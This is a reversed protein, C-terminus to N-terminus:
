PAPRDTSSGGGRFKRCATVHGRLGIRFAKCTGYRPEYEACGACLGVGTGAGTEVSARFARTRAKADKHSQANAREAIRPDPERGILAEWLLNGPATVGWLLLYRAFSGTVGRKGRLKWAAYSCGICM